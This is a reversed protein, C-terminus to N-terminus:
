SNQDFYEPFVESSVNLIKLRDTVIYRKLNYVNQINEPNLKTIVLNALELTMFIILLFLMICRYKKRIFRVCLSEPNNEFLSNNIQQNAFNARGENLNEMECEESAYNKASQRTEIM